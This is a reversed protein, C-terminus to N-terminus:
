LMKEKEKDKLFDKFEIMSEVDKLWNHKKQRDQNNEGNIVKIQKKEQELRAMDDQIEKARQNARRIKNKQIDTMWDQMMMSKYKKQEEDKAVVMGEMTVLNNSVEGLDKRKRDEGLQKLRTKEKTQWDLYEHYQRKKEKDMMQENIERKTMLNYQQKMLADWEDIVGHQDPPYYQQNNSLVKSIHPAKTTMDKKWGFSKLKLTDNVDM